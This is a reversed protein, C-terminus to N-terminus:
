PMRWLEGTFAELARRGAIEHPFNRILYLKRGAYKDRMAALTAMQWARARRCRACRGAEQPFIVRNIFLGDVGAGIEQLAALLRATQRDPMSEPLLVAWLPSRKSRILAALERVRQGVSAVEVAVDRALPLTRHAALGKLLLRSWLLIRDPMRLLELAHGTPAMDIVVTGQAKKSVLDLVRFISFIEDVGPPVVELLRFFIERDFSLDLHVGRGPVSFARDLADKIGEAWRRFEAVSDMEMARLRRDGLVPLARDGIRAQFVDDLSPAPDTSCVTVPAAPQLRRQHFALAASVTTKGVGGKGVTFSLGALRPWAAAELKLPPLARPPEMVMSGESRGPNRWRAGARAASPERGSFPELKAQRRAFVAAGLAQLHSVGMIPNGPDPALHIQQRPFHRRLFALATRVQRARTHCARCRGPRLVARNLIVAAIRFGDRRLAAQARLSQNLSFTEATTVLVLQSQGGDGGQLTAQVAAVRKRWRAVFSQAASPRAAGGFREALLRDRSGAADLFDLFRAFHEPLEFLRLTHGMPATDVVIHDYDGSELLDSIALLAAVEAMGPLTSDLLPAIEERTFFTGSEVLTLISGRNKGMFKAFQKEASIQWAFLRGASRIHAPRNDLRAELVDALSHAPDTSLLLVSQRPHHAALHAAYASSLTTKGVGGKGIFFALRSV